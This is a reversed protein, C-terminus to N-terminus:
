VEDEQLVKFLQSVARHVCGGACLCCVRRLKLIIDSEVSFETNFSFIVHQLRKIFTVADFALKLAGNYRNLLKAHVFYM